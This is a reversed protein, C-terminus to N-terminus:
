VYKRFELHIALHTNELGADVLGEADVVSFEHSGDISKNLVYTSGLFLACPTVFTALPVKWDSTLTPCQLLYVAVAAEAAAGNSSVQKVKVEDPTFPCSLTKTFKCTADLLVPIVVHHRLLKRETM